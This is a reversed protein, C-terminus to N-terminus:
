HFVNIVNVDESASWSREVMMIKKLICSMDHKWLCFDLNFFINRAYRKQSADTSYSDYASVLAIWWIYFFFDKTLGHFSLLSFFFFFFLCPLQLAEQTVRFHSLFISYLKFIIIQCTICLMTLYTNLIAIVKWTFFYIQNSNSTKRM